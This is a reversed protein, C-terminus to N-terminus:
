EGDRASGSDGAGGGRARELVEKVSDHLQAAVLRQQACLAEM